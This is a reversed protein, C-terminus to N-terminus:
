SDPLEPAWGLFVSQLRLHARGLRPRNTQLPSLSIIGSVHTKIDVWSKKSFFQKLNLITLIQFPYTFIVREIHKEPRGQALQITERSQPSLPDVEQPVLM